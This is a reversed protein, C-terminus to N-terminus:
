TQQISNSYVLNGLGDKGVARHYPFVMNCNSFLTHNGTYPNTPLAGAQVADGNWNINDFSGEFLIDLGYSGFEFTNTFTINAIADLASLSNFVLSTPECVTVGFEYINSINDDTDIVRFQITESVEPNYNTEMLYAGSNTPGGDISNIQVWVGGVFQQLRYNGSANTLTMYTQLVGGPVPDNCTMAMNTIVIADVECPTVEFPLENSIIDGSVIRYLQEGLVGQYPGILRTAETINIGTAIVDWNVGNKVEIQCTSTLNTVTINFSLCAIDEVCQQTIENIIISSEVPPEEECCKIYEIIDDDSELLVTKFTLKLCTYVEECFTITAPTCGDSEYVKVTFVGSYATFLGDPLDTVDITLEGDYGATLNLRYEHGFKDTIIIVYDEFVIFGGEIVIFDACENLTIEFCTPCTDLLNAM